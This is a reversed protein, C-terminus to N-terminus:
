ASGLPNPATTTREVLKGDHMHVVRDARNAVASDHTVVVITMGRSRLEDFQNLVTDASEPDLNGTPEDCLLITPEALLARAIAVRQREGGSLTSPMAGLRHGMGVQELCKRADRLRTRRSVGRYLLGMSVNELATRRSLLYSDQFVFGLHEGRFRSRESESMSLVRSGLISVLGSTPVDLLGILNLFTSKGSGSRGVVAVYERRLIQVDIGTLVETRIGPFSKTVNAFAVIVDAPEDHHLNM